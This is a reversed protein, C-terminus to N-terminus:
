SRCRTSTPSPRDVVEQCPASSVHKPKSDRLTRLGTSAAGVLESFGKPPALLEFVGEVRRRVDEVREVGLALCMRRESGFQNILLPMSSGRVDRFYLAPGGGKM